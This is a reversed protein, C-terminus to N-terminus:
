HYRKKRKKFTKFSELKGTELGLLEDGYKLMKGNYITMELAAGFNIYAGPSTYTDRNPMRCEACGSVAYDYAEEFAAGKSLLLPVVEEDNIIKPFGTGDKITM